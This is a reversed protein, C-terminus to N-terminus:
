YVMFTGIKTIQLLQIGYQVTLRKFCEKFRPLFVAVRNLFCSGELCCLMRSCTLVLILARWLVVHRPKIPPHRTCCVVDSCLYPMYSEFLSGSTLCVWSQCRNGWAVLAHLMQPTHPWGRLYHNCFFAGKLKCGDRHSRKSFWPVLYFKWEPDDKILLVWM